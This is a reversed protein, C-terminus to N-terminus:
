PAEVERHTKLIQQILDQRVQHTYPQLDGQKELRLAIMEREFAPIRSNHRIEAAMENLHHPGLIQQSQIDFYPTVMHGVTKQYKLHDPRIRLQDEYDFDHPSANNKITIQEEILFKGDEHRIGSNFARRAINLTIEFLPNGPLNEIAQLDCYQKLM